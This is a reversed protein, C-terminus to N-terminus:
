KVLFAIYKNGFYDEHIIDFFIFEATLFCIIQIRMIWNEALKPTWKGASARTLFRVCEWVVVLVIVWEFVYGLMNKFGFFCVVTCLISYVRCCYRCMCAYSACICILIVFYPSRKFYLPLKQQYMGSLIRGGEVAVKKTPPPPNRLNGQYPFYKINDYEFLGAWITTHIYVIDALCGLCGLCFVYDFLLKPVFHQPRALM